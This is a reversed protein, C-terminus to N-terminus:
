YNLDERKKRSLRALPKGLGQFLWSKTESNEENNKKRKIKM